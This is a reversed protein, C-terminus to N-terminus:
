NTQVFAGSCDRQYAAQRLDLACGNNLSNSELGACYSGQSDFTHSQTDCGNETFDYNKSDSNGCGLALASLVLASVGFFANRM